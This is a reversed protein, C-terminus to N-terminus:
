NNVEKKKKNKNISKIDIRKKKTILMYIMTIFLFLLVIIWLALFIIFITNM